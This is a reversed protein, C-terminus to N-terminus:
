KCYKVLYTLYLNIRGLFVELTFHIKKEKIKKKNCKFTSNQILSYLNITLRFISGSCQPENSPLAQGKSFQETLHFLGTKGLISGASSKEVV